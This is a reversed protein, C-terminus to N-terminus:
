EKLNPESKAVGRPDWSIVDFRDGIFDPLLSYVGACKTRPPLDEDVPCTVYALMPTFVADVM